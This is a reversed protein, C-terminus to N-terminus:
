FWDFAACAGTLRAAAATTAIDRVPLPSPAVAPRSVASNLNHAPAADATVSPFALAAVAAAAATPMQLLRACLSCVYVVCWCWQVIFVVLRRVGMSLAPASTGSGATQASHSSALCVKCGAHAKEFKCRTRDTAGGLLQQDYYGPHQIKGLDRTMCTLQIM